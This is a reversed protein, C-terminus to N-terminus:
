VKAIDLKITVEESDQFNSSNLITQLFIQEGSSSRCGIKAGSTIILKEENELYKCLSVENDGLFYFKLIIDFIIISFPLFKVLHNM